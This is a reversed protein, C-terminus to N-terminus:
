ARYEFHSSCSAATVFPIEWSQWSQGSRRPQSSPLDSSGHVSVAGLLVPQVCALKLEWVYHADYQNPKPSLPCKLHTKKKTLIAYQQIFCMITTYAPSPQCSALSQIGCSNRLYFDGSQDKNGMWCACSALDRWPLVSFATGPLSSCVAVSGALHVCWHGTLCTWKM